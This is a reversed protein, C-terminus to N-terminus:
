ETGLNLYDAIKIEYESVISVFDDETLVSGIEISLFSTYDQYQGVAKCQGGVACSICFQNAWPSSYDINDRIGCPTRRFEDVAPVEKWYNREAVGERSWRGIEHIGIRKGDSAYIVVQANELTYRLSGYGYPKIVVDVPFHSPEISLDNIPFFRDFDCQDRFWV